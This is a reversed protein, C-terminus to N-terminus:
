LEPLFTQAVLHHRLDVLLELTVGRNPEASFLRQFFPMGPYSPRNSLLTHESLGDTTLKANM